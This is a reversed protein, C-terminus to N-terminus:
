CMLILKFGLTQFLSLFLAPIFGGLLSGLDDQYLTLM